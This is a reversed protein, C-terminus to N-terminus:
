RTRNPIIKKSKQNKKKFKLSNVSWAVGLISIQKIHMERSFFLRNIIPDLRGVKKYKLYGWTKRELEVLEAVPM